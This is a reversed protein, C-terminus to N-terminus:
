FNNVRHMLDLIKDLDKSKYVVQENIASGTATQNKSELTLTKKTGEELDRKFSEYLANAQDITKAEKSFREVINIKEKQTVTNETVLKVIKGLSVNLVCAEELQTRIKLISEKLKKNEALIAEAKKAISEAMDITGKYEGGKSVAHAGKPTKKNAPAMTKTMRKANGTAVTVNEEVTEEGDCLVKEDKKECEKGKCEQEECGLEVEIINEKNEKMTKRNKKSEFKIEEEEFEDGDEATVDDLEINIVDDDDADSAIEIEDNEDDEEFSPLGAIDDAGEKICGEEVAGEDESGLDIVYEADNEKDKLTIKDGDKKIFVNDEDSLLKYVKMATEGDKVGTLDYTDDGVKYEEFESWADEGDEKEPEEAAQEEDNKEPEAPTEEKDNEKNDEEPKEETADKENEIELDDEEEEVAERIADQVSEKLLDKITAASEEKIINRIKEADMLAEAVSNKKTEAM